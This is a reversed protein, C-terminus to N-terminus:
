GTTMAIVDLLQQSCVPHLRRVGDLADFQEAMQDTAEAVVPLEPRRRRIRRLILRGCLDDVLGTVVLDAGDVAPCPQQKLLPCDAGDHPGACTRVDYGLLGLRKELVSRVAGDPHEVLVRVGPGTAIWDPVSSAVPRRRRKTM